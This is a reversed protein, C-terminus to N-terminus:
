APAGKQTFPRVGTLWNLKMRKTNGSKFLCYSTLNLGM